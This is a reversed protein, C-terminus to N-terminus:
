KKFLKYIEDPTKMTKYIDLACKIMPHALVAGTGEGLRMNMFLFPKLDLEEIILKM